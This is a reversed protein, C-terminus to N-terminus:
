MRYAPMPINLARRLREYNANDQAAQSLAHSQWVLANAAIACALANEDHTSSVADRLDDTEGTLQITKGKEGIALEITIRYAINPRSKM